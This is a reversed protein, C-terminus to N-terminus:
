TGGGPGLEQRFIEEIRQSVDTRGSKGAGAAIFTRRKGVDLFAGIAERTLTSVTIQRRAAEFRLRDDLGDPLQITTRKM